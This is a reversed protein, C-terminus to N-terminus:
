EMMWSLIAWFRYIMAGFNTSFNRVLIAKVFGLTLNDQRLGDSSDELEETLAAPELM